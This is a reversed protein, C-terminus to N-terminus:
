CPSTGYERFVVRVTTAHPEDLLLLGNQADGPPGYYRRYGLPVTGNHMRRHEFKQRLGHTVNTSHRQIQEEDNLELFREQLRTKQNGSILEVDVFVLVVGAKTFRQKWDDADGPNRFTVSVPEM